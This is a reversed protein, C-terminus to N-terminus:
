FGQSMQSLRHRVQQLAGQRRSWLFRFTERTFLHKPRLGLEANQLAFLIRHRHWNSRNKLLQYRGSVGLTQFGFPHAFAFCLPQSNIVLDPAAPVGWELQGSGVHFRVREELDPIDVVVPQLPRLLVPPFLDDIRVRLKEFAASIEDRTARVPPTPPLSEVGAFVEDFRALARESDVTEGVTWADGPYLPIVKLGAQDFRRVVDSPTNIHANLHINDPASFRVFSAFPITARADLGEHVRVMSDLIRQAKSPLITAPDPTGDYGAYSFQNLVVDCAGVDERIMKTDHDTVAADNVNAIRTGEAEVILCSDMQGVQYVYVSVGPAISTLQRHELEVVNPFGFRQFATVMKRSSIRQFLVTVRAKFEEPLGRLTPVHFHDPHEHSVWLHTTREFLDDPVSAGPHLTWSNNFAGKDFWPDTLIGLGETEILVSAHSVLQLKIAM